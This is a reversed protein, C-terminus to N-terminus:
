HGTNLLNVYLIDNSAAGLPFSSLALILSMGVLADNNSCLLDIM